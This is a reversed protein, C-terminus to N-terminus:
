PRIPEPVLPSIDAGKHLAPGLAQTVGQVVEPRGRSLLETLRQQGGTQLLHTVLAWAARVRVVSDEDSLAQELAEAGLGIEQGEGAADGLANAAEMRVRSEESQLKAILEAIDAM